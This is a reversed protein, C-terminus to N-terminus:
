KMMGVAPAPAPAPAPGPVPMQRTNGPCRATVFQTCQNGYGTEVNYYGIGNFDHSLSQYGFSPREIPLTIYQMSPIIPSIPPGFISNTNYTTLTNYVSNPRTLVDGLETNLYSM